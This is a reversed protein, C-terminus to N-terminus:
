RRDERLERLDVSFKAKGSMKLLQDYVKSAALLGLDKRATENVGARAARQGKALLERRVHVAIKREPQMVM